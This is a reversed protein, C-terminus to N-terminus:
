IDHLCGRILHLYNSDKELIEIGIGDSINQDRTELSNQIVIARQLAKIEIAIRERAKGALDKGDMEQKLRSIKKRIIKKERETSRSIQASRIVRGKIKSISGDPLNIIIDVIENDKLPRSTKLFLGSISFNCSIGEFTDNNSTCHTTCQKPFRRQKRKNVTQEDKEKM